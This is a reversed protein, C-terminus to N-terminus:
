ERMSVAPDQRSIRYAPLFAAVLVGALAVALGGLVFLAFKGASPFLFPFGFADTLANRFFFLVLGGLLLGCVAGITALLVASGLLSRLVGGQTAGLARLVGIERRREHVVMSFVLLIVGLSLALIVALVVLMVTQQGEMQEQFSGFLDPRTIPSVGPVQTRIQDAVQRPEYGPAVKVLISSVSEAPITFGQESQLATRRLIDAATAFTVFVSRDVSTGTPVLSARLDLEYGYIVLPEGDLPLRVSAGGVAERDALAAVEAHPSWPGLAFDTAPDVAVIFLSAHSTYPSDKITGLYLQPSAVAVGPVAAVAATESRPMWAQVPLGMLLAGQTDREAGEVVVVLDAGYRKEASELSTKAGSTIVMVALCFGATMLACVIMVATHVPRAGSNVSPRIRFM